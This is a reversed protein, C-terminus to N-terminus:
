LKEQGSDFRTRKRNMLQSEVLTMCDKALESSYLGINLEQSTYWSARDINGSGLVLCHNDIVVMKLHLHRPEETGEKPHFYEMLLKGMPQTGSLTGKSRLAQYRKILLKICRKTTTGATCLQELIMVNENTTIHIDVGRQSAETLAHIIPMCAFDPTFLSISTTATRFAHLLFTNLPTQPPPSFKKWPLIMFRPNRHHSQPLFVTPIQGQDVFTGDSLPQEHPKAEKLVKADSYSLVQHQSSGNFTDTATKDESAAWFTEWFLIFQQVVPGTLSICLELWKDPSINASPIFVVRRDIVVYKSHILSLPRIFISKVTLDLGPIKDASPLGFKTWIAPPYVCTTKPQFVQQWISFVSFCIHARIPQLNRSVRKQSLEQLADALITTSSSPGLFCTVLLIESEALALQPSITSFINEAIGVQIGHQIASTQLSTPHSVFYNPTSNSDDNRVSDYYRLWDRFISPVDAVAEDM